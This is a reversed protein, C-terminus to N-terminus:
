YNECCVRKCTVTTSPPSLSSTTPNAGDLFSRPSFGTIPYGMEIVRKRLVSMCMCYLFNMFLSVYVRADCNREFVCVFCVYLLFM